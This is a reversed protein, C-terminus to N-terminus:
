VSNGDALESSSQEISVEEDIYPVWLNFFIGHLSGGSTDAFLKVADSESIQSTM